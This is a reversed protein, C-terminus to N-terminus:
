LYEVYFHLITLLKFRLKWTFQTCIKLEEQEVQQGKQGFSTTSISSSYIITTKPNVVIRIIWFATPRITKFHFTATPTYPKLTQSTDDALNKKGENLM